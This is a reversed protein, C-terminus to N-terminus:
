TDSPSKDQASAGGQSRYGGAIWDMALQGFAEPEELWAFAGSGVAEFRSQPAIRGLWGAADAGALELSPGEVALIPISLPPADNALRACSAQHAKLYAALPRARATSMERMVDAREAGPVTSKELAARVEATLQERTRLSPGAQMQMAEGFVDQGIILSELAGREMLALEIACTWWMGPAVLHPHNLRFREILKALFGAMAKPTLLDARHEALGIGPLDVAIARGVTSFAQWTQDFASLTEPWPALLLIDPGSRKDDEVYRIRLGDVATWRASDALRVRELPSTNM